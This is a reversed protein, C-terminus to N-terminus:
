SMGRPKVPRFLSAILVLFFAGLLGRILYAPTSVDVFTSQGIIVPFFAGLSAGIIGLLLNVVLIGGRNRLVVSALAGFIIGILIMLVLNAIPM